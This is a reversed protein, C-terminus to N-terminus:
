GTWSAALVPPLGAPADFGTRLEVVVLHYGHIGRQGVMVVGAVRSVGILIGRAIGTVSGDLGVRAVRDAGPTAGTHTAILASGDSVWAAAQFRSAVKRPASGDAGAVWIARRTGTEVTYAIARPGAVPSVAHDVVILTTVATTTLDLSQVGAEGRPGRGAFVLASNDPTFSLGATDRLEAIRRGTRQVVLANPGAAFAITRGDPSWRIQCSRARAPQWGLSTVFGATTVMTAGEAGLYAVADGSPSVALMQARPCPLRADALRALARRPTGGLSAIALIRHRLYAIRTVQGTPTAVQLVRRSEFSEAPRAPTRRAEIFIAAGAGVLTAGVAVVRLAQQMRPSMRERATRFALDPADDPPEAM